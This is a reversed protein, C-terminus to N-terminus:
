NVTSYLLTNFLATFYNYNTYTQVSHSRYYIEEILLIYNHCYYDNVFIINRTHIQSDNTM